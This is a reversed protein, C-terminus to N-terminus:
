GRGRAARHARALASRRSLIRLAEKRAKGRAPTLRSGPPTMGLVAQLPVSLCPLSLHCCPAARHASVHAPELALELDTRRSGGDARLDAATERVIEDHGVDEDDVRD